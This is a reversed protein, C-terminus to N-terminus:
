VFPLLYSNKKSYNKIFNLTRLTIMGSETCIFSSRRMDESKSNKILNVCHECLRDNKFYEYNTFNGSFIKKSSITKESYTNCLGCISPKDELNNENTLGANNYIFKQVTM